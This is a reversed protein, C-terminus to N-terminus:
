FYIGMKANLVNRIQIMAEKIVPRANIIANKLFNEKRIIIIRREKLKIKASTNYKMRNMLRIRVRRIVSMNIIMYASVKIAPLPVYMGVYIM